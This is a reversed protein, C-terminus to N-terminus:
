GGPPSGFGPSEACRLQTLEARRGAPSVVRATLLQCGAPGPQQLRQGQWGGPVAQGLLLQHANRWASRQQWQRQFGDALALQYQMLASFSLSFLLLAVLTEILSFGQQDPRDSAPEPM